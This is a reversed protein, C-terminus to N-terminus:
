NKELLAPLRNWDYLKQLFVSEQTWQMVSDSIGALEYHDALVYIIWLLVVVEAAGAAMGLIRDLIVIIPLHSIAGLSKMILSVLKTLIGTVLIVAVSIVINKTNKEKISTYLLIGVCITFLSLVLTMLHYIEGTLGRKAGRCVRWVVLVGLIVLLLNINM